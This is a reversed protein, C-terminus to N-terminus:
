LESSYRGLLYALLNIMSKVRNLVNFQVNQYLVNNYRCKGEVVINKYGEFMHSFEM